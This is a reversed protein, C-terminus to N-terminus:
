FDRADLAADGFLFERISPDSSNPERTKVGRLRLTLPTLFGSCRTSRRGILIGKNVPGLFETRSKQRRSAPADIFIGKNVPGLFETRSKQRRSAPADTVDFTGLM